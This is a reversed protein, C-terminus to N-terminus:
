LSRSNQGEGAWGPPLSSFGKDTKDCINFPRWVFFLHHPFYLGMAWIFDLVGKTSHAFIKMSKSSHHFYFFASPFISFLSGSKCSDGAGSTHCPAGSTVDDISRSSFTRGAASWSQSRVGVAKVLGFGRSFVDRGQGRVVEWALPVADLLSICRATRSDWLFSSNM